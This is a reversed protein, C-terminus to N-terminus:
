TRVCVAWMGNTLAGKWLSSFLVCNGYGYLLRGEWWPAPNLWYQQGYYEVWGSTKGDSAVPIHHFGLPAVRACERLTKRMIPEPMHELSGITIAVDFQDDGFPLNEAPCVIARDLALGREGAARIYRMSRDCGCYDLDVGKVGSTILSSFLPATGCAVDLVRLASGPRWLAMLMAVAEPWATDRGWGDLHEHLDDNEEYSSVGVSTEPAPLFRVAKRAEAIALERAVGTIKKACDHLDALAQMKM